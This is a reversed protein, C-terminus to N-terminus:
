SISNEWTPKRGLIAMINSKTKLSLNIERMSNYSRQKPEDTIWWKVGEIVCGFKEEYFLYYNIYM